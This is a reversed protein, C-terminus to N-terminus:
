KLIFKLFLYFLVFLGGVFCSVSFSLQRPNGSEKWECFFLIGKPLLYNTSFGFFFLFMFVQISELFFPSDLIFNLDM